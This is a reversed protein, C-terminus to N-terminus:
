KFAGLETKNCGGHGTADAPLPPNGRSTVWSKLRGVGQPLLSPMCGSKQSDFPNYAHVRSTADSKRSLQEIDGAGQM